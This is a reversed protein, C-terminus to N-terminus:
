MVKAFISLIRKGGSTVPRVTSAFSGIGDSIATTARSNSLKNYETTSSPKSQLAMHSEKVFRQYNTNSKFIESQKASNEERKLTPKPQIEYTQIVAYQGDYQTGNRM